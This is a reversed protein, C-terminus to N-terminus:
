ENLQKYYSSKLRDLTENSHKRSVDCPHGPRSKIVLLAELTTDGLSARQDTRNKRVVSFVRECHASSHPICLIGLMFEALEHFMLSGGENRVQGIAVWKEDIRKCDEVLSQINQSQYLVFQEFINDKTSGEPILSPFRDVFFEVSSQKALSQKDTDAIESHLLIPENLPLNSKIYECANVFYQRVASYFERIRRDRLHNKEKNKIYEKAANGIVLDNDVKQNYSLKFQVEDVSKGVMASPKVFRSLIKRMVSHLAGRLKHIRPDEAQLNKLVEDYVNITYSLFLTFLKNTPSKIFSFISDVKKEAYSPEYKDNEGKSSESKQEAKTDKVVKADKVAKKKEILSFEKYFYDKLADWNFLLREICRGISLWRTCVHKLMRKQELDYLDQCGKFSLKRSDSKNFYYYIDILVDDISPLADAAKKASIHILHLVCGSLYVTPQKEKVYAYVGKRRGTMVSANDSGMSLCNEWTVNRDKLDKDMLNFINQGTAAESCVPISLLESNVLGTETNKTRVVLPYQKSTADNSGDTSISFPASKLRESLSKQTMRALDLVIATAKNRACKMGSFNSTKM